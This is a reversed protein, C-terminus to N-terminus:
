YKEYWSFVKNVIEEREKEVYTLFASAVPSLSKSKLWILNWQTKVPLGKYPVIELEDNEIADKIGILPM